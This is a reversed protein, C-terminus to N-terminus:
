RRKRLLGLLLLGAAGLAVTSPEPMDVHRATRGAFGNIQSSAGNAKLELVTRVDVVNTRETFLVRDFLKKDDDKGNHFVELRFTNPYEVASECANEDLPQGTLILNIDFPNLFEGGVCIDSTVKAYGPAVPTFTDLIFEFGPIIPPPPDILYNFAYAVHQFGKIDFLSSSFAFGKQLSQPTVLIDAATALVSPASPNLDVAEFYFNKAFFGGGLACTAGIYSSLPGEVCPLMLGGKASPGFLVVAACCSLLIRKVPEEPLVFLLM